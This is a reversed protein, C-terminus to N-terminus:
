SNLREEIAAVAKMVEDFSAAAGFFMGVDLMSQYDSKLVALAKGTPVLRFKRNRCDDYRAKGDRWFADKHNVVQLCLERDTIAREGTDTKMIAALDSWHRSMREATEEIRGANLEAHILTVKEWFTREALLTDVVPEPFALEETKSALYPQLKQPKSPETENRGSLEIKVRPKLYGVSSALVSKYNVHIEWDSDGPAIMLVDGYTTAAETLSPALLSEKYEQLNAEIEERINSAKTKSIPREYDQLFNVSIDIDESFRNILNFVKSLSTGGKFVMPRRKPISFLVNLVFCIWVDKELVAPLMKLEPAAANIVEQQEQADLKLFEAAM